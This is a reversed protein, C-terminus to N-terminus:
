HYALLIEFNDSVTILHRPLNRHSNSDYIHIENIYYHVTKSPKYGKKTQSPFDIFFTM